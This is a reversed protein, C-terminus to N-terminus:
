NKMPNDLHLVKVFFQFQNVISIRQCVICKSRFLREKLFVRRDWRPKLAHSVFEVLYSHAAADLTHKEYVFMTQWMDQKQLEACCKELQVYRSSVLLM